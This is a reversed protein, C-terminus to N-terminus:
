YAATLITGRSDWSWCWLAAAALWLQAQWLTEGFVAGETPQFYRATLLLGISAPWAASPEPSAASPDRSAAPEPAPRNPRDRRAM